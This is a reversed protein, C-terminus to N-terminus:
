ASSGISEKKSNLEITFERIRKESLEIELTQFEIEKSLSDFERNNRVNNQQEQYKKILAQSNTIEAKKNAQATDLSKLEDELNQVRTELGIIEDELDQVELPLEGRLIKIEDIQSVVKQLEYLAKLKEEITIEKEAKLENAM